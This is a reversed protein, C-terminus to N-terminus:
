HRRSPLRLARFPSTGGTGIWYSGGHHEEQQEKLREELMRKLEDLDLQLHNRRMEETIEKDPLEKDLWEWIKEPLGEPTEVGEFFRAFALDFRDYHAESKVLVARCLYYFGILSSGCLGAELAELLANWEMLSVPLGQNKLEYYFRTFMM